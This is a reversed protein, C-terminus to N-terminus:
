LNLIEPKKRVRKGEIISDLQVGAQNLKVELKKQKSQEEARKQAQQSDVQFRKKFEDGTQAKTILLEDKKYPRKLNNVYYNNGEQREVTHIAKSWRVSTKKDTMTKTILTRVRTGIPIDGIKEQAENRQDDYVEKVENKNKEETADNPTMRITSHIKNNYYDVLENLVDIWNKTEKYTTYVLIMRRLTMNFREVVGKGRTDGPNVLNQTINNEECFKEFTKSLFSGENDSDLIITENKYEHPIEQKVEKFIKEFENVIEKDKNISKTKLPRVFAKRTFIDVACMIYRYGRNTQTPYVNYTGAMDMLDIQLRQFPRTSYIPYHVTPKKYPRTLEKVEENNFIKKLNNLSSM